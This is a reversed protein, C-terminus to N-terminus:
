GPRTTAICGTACYRATWAAQRQAEGRPWGELVLAVGLLRRVQGGDETKGAFRRLDSPTHDKRTVEISKGM